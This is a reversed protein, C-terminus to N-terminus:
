VLRFFHSHSSPHFSQLLFGNEYCWLCRNLLTYLHHRSVDVPVNNAKAAKIVDALQKNASPEPSGGQKVAMIIRKGYLANTKAKKADTKSKTAARVAAARGMFLPSLANSRRTTTSPHTNPSSSTTISFAAASAVVLSAVLFSRLQM